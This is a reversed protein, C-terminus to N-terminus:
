TSLHSTRSETVCFQHNHSSVHPPTSLHFHYKTHPAPLDLEVGESLVTRFHGAGLGCSNMSLDGNSVESCSVRIYDDAPWKMFDSATRNTERSSCVLQIDNSTM